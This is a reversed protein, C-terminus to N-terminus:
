MPLFSCSKRFNLDSTAVKAKPERGLCPNAFTPALVLTRSYCKMNKPAYSLTLSHVKVSGLSSGSQSNSDRHVELDKSPSQLPWFDNFTPSRRSKRAHLHRAVYRQFTRSSPQLKEEFMMMHAWKLCTRFVKWHYLSSKLGIFKSGQLQGRFIKSDMSVGVGLTPAWKPTHPNM